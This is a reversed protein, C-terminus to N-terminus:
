FVCTKIESSFIQLSLFLEFTSWLDWQDVEGDLSGWSKGVLESPCKFDRRGETTFPTSDRKGVAVIKFLTKRAQKIKTWYM